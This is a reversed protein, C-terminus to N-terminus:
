GNRRRTTAAKTAKAPADAPADAAPTGTSANGEGDEDSDEDAKAQAEKRKKGAAPVDEQLAFYPHFNNAIDHYGDELFLDVKDEPVEITDGKNLVRDKFLPSAYNSGAVMVITVKSM